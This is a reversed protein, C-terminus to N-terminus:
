LSRKSSMLNEFGMWTTPHVEKRKVALYYVLIHIYWMNNMWEDPLCKPPKWSQSYRQQLCDHVVKKEKKPLSAKCCPRCSRLARIMSQVWAGANLTCLELWQVALSNGVRDQDSYIYIYITLKSILSTHTM